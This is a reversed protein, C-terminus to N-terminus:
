SFVNPWAEWLVLLTVISFPMVMLRSGTYLDSTQNPEKAERPKMQGGAENGVENMGEFKRSDKFM